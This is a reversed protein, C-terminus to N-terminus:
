GFDGREGDSALLVDLPVSSIVSVGAFPPVAAPEDGDLLQAVVDPARQTILRDALDFVDDPESTGAGGPSRPDPADIPLRGVGALAADAFESVPPNSPDCCFLCAWPRGGEVLKSVQTAKARHLRAVTRPRVLFCGMQRHDSQLTACPDGLRGLTALRRRAASPPPAPLASYVVYLPVLNQQIAYAVLTKRQQGKGHHLNRISRQDPRALKAQVLLSLWRGPRGIVWLWDAGSLSGEEHKMFKRALVHAKPLARMIEVLTLDTLTEECVGLGTSYSYRILEHTAIARDRFADCLLSPTLTM